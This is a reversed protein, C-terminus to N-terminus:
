PINHTTECDTAVDTGTGGLGLDSGRGGNLDDNGAASWPPGPCSRPMPALLGVGDVAAWSV